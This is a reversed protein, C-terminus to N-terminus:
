VHGPRAQHAGRIQAVAAASARRGDESAGLADGSAVALAGPEFAGDGGESTILTAAPTWDTLALERGSAEGLNKFWALAIPLTTTVEWSAFPTAHAVAGAVASVGDHHAAVGGKVIRLIPVVLAGVKTKGCTQM